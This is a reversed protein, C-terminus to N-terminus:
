LKTLTLVARAKAKALEAPNDPQADEAMMSRVKDVVEQPLMGAVNNVPTFEDAFMIEDAFGLEKARTATLWTEASMMKLLENTPIKTRLQYASAISEDIGSLMDSLHEFDNKNGDGCTSARHIMMQATPSMEVREGAMAIVSAASAAIGVVKVTVKGAHSKLATYIESGAFVSGGGSNIIVDVDGEGELAAVVKKPSTAPIKFYDYIRQDGDSIIPGKIEIKM